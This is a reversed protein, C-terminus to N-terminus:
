ESMGLTVTDGRRPRRNATEDPEPKTENYFTTVIDAVADLAANHDEIGNLYDVIHHLTTAITYLEAVFAEAAPHNAAARDLRDVGDHNADLKAITELGNAAATYM